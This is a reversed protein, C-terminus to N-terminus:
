MNDHLVNCYFDQNIVIRYLISLRVYVRVGGQVYSVHPYNKRRGSILNDLKKGAGAKSCMHMDCNIQDLVSSTDPLSKRVNVNM